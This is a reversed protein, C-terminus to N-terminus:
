RLNRIFDGGPNIASSNIEVKMHYEFLVSVRARILISTFSNIEPNSIRCYFDIIFVISNRRVVAKSGSPFILIRGM